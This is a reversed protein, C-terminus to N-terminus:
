DTLNELWTYYDAKFDKFDPHEIRNLKEKRKAQIHKQLDEETDQNVVDKVEQVQHIVDILGKDKAEITNRQNTYLTFSDKWEQLQAVQALLYKREILAAEFSKYEAETFVQVLNGNPAKHLGVENSNILHESQARKSKSEKLHADQATEQATGVGWKALQKDTFVYAGKRKRLKYRAARAQVAREKVGLMEAVEAVSYIKISM